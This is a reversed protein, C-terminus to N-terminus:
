FAATADRWKRIRADRAENDAVQQIHADDGDEPDSELLSDAFNKSSSAMVRSSPAGNATDNTSNAISAMDSTVNTSKAISGTDSDALGSAQASACQFNAKAVKAANQTDFWNLLTDLDRHNATEAGHEVKVRASATAADREAELDVDAADRAASRRDALQALQL